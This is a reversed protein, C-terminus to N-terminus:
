LTYFTAVAYSKTFVRFLMFISVAGISQGGPRDVRCTIHAFLILLLDPDVGRGDDIQLRDAGCGALWQGQLLTSPIDADGVGVALGDMVFPVHAVAAPGLGVFFGHGVVVARRA